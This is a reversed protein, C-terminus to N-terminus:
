KISIEEGSDLRLDIKSFMDGPQPNKSQEGLLMGSGKTGKVNYVLVTAGGGRKETEEGTANVNMSMSQIEGLHEAIAPHGAVEQQMADNVMSLSFWITGGCCGCVLLGGVGVIGLIWIWASSKKPPPAGFGPQNAYPNPQSAPGFGGSQGFSGGQGGFGSSFWALGSPAIATASRNLSPLSM